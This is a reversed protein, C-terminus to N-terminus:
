ESPDVTEGELKELVRELAERLELYRPVTQVLNDRIMERIARAWAPRDPELRHTLAYLHRIQGQTVQRSERIM